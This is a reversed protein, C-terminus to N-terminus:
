GAAPEQKKGMGFVERTDKRLLLYLTPASIFVNIINGNVVGIILLYGILGTLVKWALPEVKRIGKFSWILGWAIGIYFVLYLSTRFIYRPAAAATADPLNSLNSIVTILGSVLVAAGAITSIIPLIILVRIISINRQVKKEM